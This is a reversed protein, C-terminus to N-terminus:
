RREFTVEINVRTPVATGDPLHGPVFQWEQIAEAANQDLGYGAPRVLRIDTARGDARVTVRLMAAAKSVKKARAEPSFEPQPCYKCGPPTVVGVVALYVQTVPDRIPTDPLTTAERSAPIKTKFEAIQNGDATNTITISPEIYGDAMKYTGGIAAQVGLANAISRFVMSDDIDIAMWKRDQLAGILRANDFVQIDAGTRALASRLQDSLKLGLARPNPKQGYFQGVAVIKNKTKVLKEAIRTALLDIEPQEADAATINEQAIAAARTRVPSLGFLMSILVAVFLRLTPKTTM